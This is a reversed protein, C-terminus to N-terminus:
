WAADPAGANGPLETFTGNDIRGFTPCYALMAARAVDLAEWAILRLVEQDSSSLGALAQVLRAREVASGATDPM